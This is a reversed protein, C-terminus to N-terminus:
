ISLRLLVQRLTANMNLTGGTISMDGDVNMTNTGSTFNTLNVFGASQNYNGRVNITNGQGITYTATGSFTLNIYTFSPLTFTTGTAPSVYNVTSGTVTYTASMVFAWPEPAQCLGIAAPLMWIAM